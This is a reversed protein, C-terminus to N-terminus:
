TTKSKLIASLLILTACHDYHTIPEVMANRPLGEITKIMDDLMGILDDRSMKPAVVELPDDTSKITPVITNGEDDVRLFNAWDKSSCEYADLGGTVSIEGCKCTVYDYRHFSELIDNCLRCKARNRM